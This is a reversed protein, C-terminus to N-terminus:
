NGTLTLLFTKQNNAGAGSTYDGQHKAKTLDLKFTIDGQTEKWGQTVKLGAKNHKTTTDKGTTQGTPVFAEATNANTGTAVLGIDSVLIKSTDNTLTDNQIEASLSVKNTSIARVAWANQLKVSLKGADFDLVKDTSPVAGTITYSGNKVLEANNDDLKHQGNVIERDADDDIGDAVTDTLNLHANDWHYLVLVEPITVKFDIAGQVSKPNAHATTGMVATTLALAVPLAKKLAQM